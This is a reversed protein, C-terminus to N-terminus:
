QESLIWAENFRVHQIRARDHSYLLEITGDASQAVAPYAWDGDGSVAARPRTWTIGQDLSLTASLPNRLRPSDNLVLLLHGSHLRLLAAPSGPNSFGSATSLTWDTGDRSWGTWLAGQSPNRAVLLLAGDTVALSPQILGQPFPPSLLARTRWDAGDHSALLLGRSFLDDYAPLLLEGSLGTPGTGPSDAGVRVPPFRVNAGLQESVVQAASWTVGADRSRIQEVHATSWGFPVVAFFLWVDAAEAYLVPNGVSEGRDIWKEPASWAVGAEGISGRVVGRARYIDAENLERPGVYSFWAALIDGDPMVAVAPSHHGTKGPVQAFVPLTEFRAASDDLASRLRPLEGPPIRESLFFEGGDRLVPNPMCATGTCIFACLCIMLGPARIVVDSPSDFRLSERM